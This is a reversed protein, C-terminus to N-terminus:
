GQRTFRYSRLRPSGPESKIKLEIVVKVLEALNVFKRLDTRLSFRCVQLHM